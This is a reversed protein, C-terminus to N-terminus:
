LFILVFAIALVVWPWKQAMAVVKSVQISADQDLRVPFGLESEIIKKREENAFKYGLRFFEKYALHNKCMCEKIFFRHMVLERSYYSGWMRRITDEDIAQERVGVAIMEFRNLRRIILNRKELQESKKLNGVNKHLGEPMDANLGELRALFQSFQVSAFDSPHPNYKDKFEVLIDDDCIWNKDSLQEKVISIAERRAVNKQTIRYLLYAFLASLSIAFFTAISAIKAITSLIKSRGNGM